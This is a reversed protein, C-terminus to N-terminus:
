SAMAKLVALMRESTQDAVEQQWADMPGCDDGNGPIGCGNEVGAARCCSGCRELGMRSLFGPMVLEGSLGCCTVGRIMTLREYTDGGEDWLDDEDVVAVRHLRRWSPLVKWAQKWPM